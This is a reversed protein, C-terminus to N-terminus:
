TKVQLLEFAARRPFIAEQPAPVTSKDLMWGSAASCWLMRPQVQEYKVCWCCFILVEAGNRAERVGLCNWDWSLKCQSLYGPVSCLSHHATCCWPFASLQLNQCPGSCSTPHRPGHSRARCRCCGGESM